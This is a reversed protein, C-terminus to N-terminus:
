RDWPRSRVPRRRRAGHFRRAFGTLDPGRSVAGDTSSSKGGIVGLKWEPFPGVSKTLATREPTTQAVTLM